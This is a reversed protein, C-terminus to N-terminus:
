RRAPTVRRRVPRRERRGFTLVVLAALLLALTFLVYVMGHLEVGRIMAGVVSLLTLAALVFLLVLALLRLSLLVIISARDGPDSPSLGPRGLAGRCGAVLAPLPLLLVGVLVLSKVLM